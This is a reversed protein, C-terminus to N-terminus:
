GRVALSLLGATLAAAALLVCGTACLLRHRLERYRATYESELARCRAAVGTLVRRALRVREEAYRATLEARQGDTLWPLTDAFAEAEARATSLESQWLLYGELQAIGEAAEDRPPRVARM